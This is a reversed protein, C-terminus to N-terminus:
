SKVAIAMHIVGPYEAPPNWSGRGEAPFRLKAGRKKLWEAVAITKMAERMERLIPYEKAIDDYRASLEQAYETLLPDPVSRGGSYKELNFKMTFAGFRMANGDRSEIIEISGPSIWTHGQTAPARDKTRRWEIYTRYQPVKKKLDPNDLLSKCFVDAKFATHALLSTSSFGTFVPRVRPEVGLIQKM